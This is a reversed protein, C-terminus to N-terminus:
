SVEVTKEAAILRTAVTAPDLLRILEDGAARLDALPMPDLRELLFLGRRSDEHLRTRVCQRHNWRRCTVGADDRWVVEGPDAHETVPTGGSVTDFPEGGAARVLRPSGVYSDLDEGGVPLRYRVSVANYIDVLRNVSPLGAGRRLLAELSNRTRSPKAGFARYAERWAEVHPEPAQHEVTRGAEALLRETRADSPGGRLGDAVIVLVAFDPRLAAVAPDLRIGDLTAGYDNPHVM